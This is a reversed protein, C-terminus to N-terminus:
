REAGTILGPYSAVLRELVNRTALLDDRCHEGLDPLSLQLTDAGDVKKPPMGCARMWDSLSGELLDCGDLVRVWDKPRPLRWPLPVQLVLARGALFPLDFDRVNWGAVVYLSNEKSLRRMWGDLLGILRDEENENVEEAHDVLPAGVSTLGCVGIAAIRGTRASLAMNAREKMAAETKFAAIKVEDKYNSPAQIEQARQAWHDVDDHLAQDARTEIDLVIIPRDTM